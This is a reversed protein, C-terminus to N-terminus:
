FFALVKFKRIEIATQIVQGYAIKAAGVFRLLNNKGLGEWAMTPAIEPEPTWKFMLAGFGWWWLASTVFVVALKFDMDWDFPGMLIILHFILLMSGGMFGYIYGWTLVKDQDERKGWDTM